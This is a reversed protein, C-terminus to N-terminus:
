QAHPLRRLSGSVSEALWRAGEASRDGLTYAVVQGTRRCLALWLWLANAKSAVFSWLEDLELVDGKAGALLTDALAPLAEAKKKRGAACPAIVPDSPAHSPAPPCGSAVPRLWSASVSPGATARRGLAGARGDKQVGPM